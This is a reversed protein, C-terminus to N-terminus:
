VDDQSFVELKKPKIPVDTILIELIEFLLAEICISKTDWSNKRISVKDHSSFNVVSKRSRELFVESGVPM